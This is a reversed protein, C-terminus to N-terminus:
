NKLIECIESGYIIKRSLVENFVFILIMLISNLSFLNFDFVYLCIVFLIFIIIIKVIIVSFLLTSFVIPATVIEGLSKDESCIEKIIKKTYISDLIIKIIMDIMTIYLLSKLDIM